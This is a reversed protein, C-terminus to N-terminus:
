FFYNLISIKYIFFYSFALLLIAQSDKNKKSKNLETKKKERNIKQEPHIWNGRRGSMASKTKTKMISM